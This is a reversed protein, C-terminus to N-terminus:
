KPLMFESLPIPEIYNYECNSNEILRTLLQSIQAFTPRDSTEFEWCSLMLNYSFV